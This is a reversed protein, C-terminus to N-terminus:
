SLTYSSFSIAPFISINLYGEMGYFHFRDLMLRNSSLSAGWVNQARM